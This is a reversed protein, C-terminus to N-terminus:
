SRRSRRPMAERMPNESEPRCTMTGLEGLEVRVAGTGCVGDEVPVVVVRQGAAAKREEQQGVEGFWAHRPKEAMPAPQLQRDGVDDVTEVIVGGMRRPGDLPQITTM